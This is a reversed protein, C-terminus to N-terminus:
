RKEEEEEKNIEKELTKWRGRECLELTKGEEKEENIRKEEKGDEKAKM